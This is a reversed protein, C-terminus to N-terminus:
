TARTVRVGHKFEPAVAVLRGEESGKDAQIRQSRLPKRVSHRMRAGLASGAAEPRHAMHRGVLDVDIAIPRGNPATMVSM